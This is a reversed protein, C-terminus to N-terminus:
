AKERTFATGESKRIVARKRADALISAQVARRPSNVSPIGLVTVIRVEDGTDRLAHGWAYCQTATPHGMLEFVQVRGKWLTKGEYVEEIPASFVHESECNHAKLIARQLSEIYNM